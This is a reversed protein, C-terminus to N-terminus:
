QIAGFHTCLSSANNDSVTETHLSFGLALPFFVDAAGDVDADVM